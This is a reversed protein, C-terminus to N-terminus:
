VPASRPLAAQRMRNWKANHLDLTGISLTRVVSLMEIQLTLLALPM